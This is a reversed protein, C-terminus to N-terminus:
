AAEAANTDQKQIEPKELTDLLAGVLRVLKEEYDKVPIMVQIAEIEWESEM